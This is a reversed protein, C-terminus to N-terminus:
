NAEELELSFLYTVKKGRKEKRGIIENTFSVEWKPLNFLARLYLVYLM